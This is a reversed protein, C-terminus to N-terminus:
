LNPWFFNADLPVGMETIEGCHPCEMEQNMDIDPMTKLYARKLLSTDLIPLSQLAQSIYFHDSQGNIGVTIKKLLDLSGGSTKAIAKEDRSTLLRYELNCGSKPLTIIFTNQETKEVSNPMEIEKAQLEELNFNHESKAGCAPCQVETSYNAGYGYVRSMILLANKYGLLLDDVKIKKNVIVSQLMKDIALGKKLLSASTLIDEEKATMHRIEITEAKHLPHGELYYEGKSPLEVAEVPVVFNFQNQAEQQINPQGQRPDAPPSHASAVRNQNRSM